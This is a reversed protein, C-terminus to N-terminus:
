HIESPPSPVTTLRALEQRIDDARQSKPDRQLATELSAKALTTKGLKEYVLGLHYHYTPNQPVERIAEQLLEVGPEYIGM